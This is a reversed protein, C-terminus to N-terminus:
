IQGEKDLHFPLICMMELGTKLKANNLCSVQADMPKQGPGVFTLFPGPHLRRMHRGARGQSEDVTNGSGETKQMKARPRQKNTQEEKLENIQNLNTDGLM